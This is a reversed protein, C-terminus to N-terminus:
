HHGASGKPSVCSGDLQLGADDGVRHARGSDGAPRCGSHRLLPVAGIVFSLVFGIAIKMGAERQFQNAVFSRIPSTGAPSAQKDAKVSIRPRLPASPFSYGTDSAMTWARIGGSGFSGFQWVGGDVNTTTARSTTPCSPRAIIRAASCLAGFRTSSLRSM